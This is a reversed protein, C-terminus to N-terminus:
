VLGLASVGLYEHIVAVDLVQCTVPVCSADWLHCKTHGLPATPDYSLTCSMLAPPEPHM